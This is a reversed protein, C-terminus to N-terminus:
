NATQLSSTGEFIQKKLIKDMTDGVLSNSTLSRSARLHQLSSTDIFM